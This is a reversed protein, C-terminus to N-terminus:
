GYVVDGSPVRVALTGCRDETHSTARSSLRACRPDPSGATHHDVETSQGSCLGTAIQSQRVM